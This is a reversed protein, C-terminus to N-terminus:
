GNRRDAWRGVWVWGDYRGRAMRRGDEWPRRKSEMWMCRCVADIACAISEGRGGYEGGEEESSAFRPLGSCVCVLATCLSGFGCARENKIVLLLGLDQSDDGSRRISCGLASLRCEDVRSAVTDLDALDLEQESLTGSKRKTLASAPRCDIASIESRMRRQAGGLAVLGTSSYM